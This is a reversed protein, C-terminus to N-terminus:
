YTLTRLAAGEIVEDDIITSFHIDPNSSSGSLQGDYSNSGRVLLTYVHNAHLYVGTSFILRGKVFLEGEEDLTEELQADSAGDTVLHCCLM